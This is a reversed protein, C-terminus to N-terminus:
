QDWDAGLIAQAASLFGRKCAGVSTASEDSATCTADIGAQVEVAMHEGHTCAIVIGVDVGVACSVADIGVEGECISDASVEAGCESRDEEASEEAHEEPLLFCFSAKAFLTTM